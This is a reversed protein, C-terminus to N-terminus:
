KSSTPVSLSLGMFPRIRNENAQLSPIVTGQEPKVHTETEFGFSGQGSRLPVRGLGPETSPAHQRLAVSPDPLADQITWQSAQVKDTRLKAPKSSKTAPQTTATSSQLQDSPEAPAFVTSLTMLAVSAAYLKVGKVLMRQGAM